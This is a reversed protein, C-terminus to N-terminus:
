EPLEGCRKAEVAAMALESKMISSASASFMGLPSLPEIWLDNV